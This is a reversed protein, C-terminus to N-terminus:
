NGQVRTTQTFTLRLVHGLVACDSALQRGAPFRTHGDPTSPGVWFVAAARVKLDESVWLLACPDPPRECGGAVVVAEWVVLM